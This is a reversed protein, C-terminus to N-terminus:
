NTPQTVYTQTKQPNVANGTSVQDARYSVNTIQNTVDYGFREGKGDEDRWTAVERGARDYQYHSRAFWADGVRTEEWLTPRNLGDYAGNGAPYRANTAENGPM